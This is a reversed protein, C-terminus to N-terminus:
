ISITSYENTVVAGRRDEGGRAGARPAMESQARALPRLGPM